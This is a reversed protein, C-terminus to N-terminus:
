KINRKKNRITHKSSKYSYTSVLSKNSGVLIGFLINLAIIIFGFNKINLLFMNFNSKFTQVFDLGIYSRINLVYASFISILAIVFGIISLKIKSHNQTKKDEFVFIFLFSLVSSFFMVIFTPTLDITGDIMITDRILFSVSTLFFLSLIKNKSSM